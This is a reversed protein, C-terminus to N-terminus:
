KKELHKKSLEDAITNQERPIWEFTIKAGRKRLDVCLILAKKAYDVYPGNRVKWRRSMQNIVLNSDGFVNLNVGTVDYKSFEQLGQCLAEYEAVNNSMGNGTGFVAHQSAVLEGSNHLTFGYAAVGNPNPWCSGDFHLTYVPYM